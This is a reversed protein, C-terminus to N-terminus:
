RSAARRRHRRKRPGLRSLAVAMAASALFFAAISTVAWTPLGGRKPLVPGAAGLNGAVAAQLVRSLSASDAASVMVGGASDAIAQLQSLVAANQDVGFGIVTFRALGAQVQKQATPGPPGDLLMAAIAMVRM